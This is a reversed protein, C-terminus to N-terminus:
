QCFVLNRRLPNGLMLVVLLPAAMPVMLSVVLTVFIPFLIKETKSVPRLQEM